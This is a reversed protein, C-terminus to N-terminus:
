ENTLQAAIRGLRKADDQELLYLRNELIDQRLNYEEYTMEDNQWRRLNANAIADIEDRTTAAELTVLLEDGVSVPEHEGTQKRKM